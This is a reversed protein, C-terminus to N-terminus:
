TSHEVVTHRPGDSERTPPVARGRPRAADVLPVCQGPGPCRLVLEGLPEVGDGDLVGAPCRRRRAPPEAPAALLVRRGDLDQGPEAQQHPGGGGGAPPGAHRGLGREIVEEGGVGAPDGLEDLLGGAGALRHHAHEGVKMGDVGHAQGAGLGLQHLARGVDRGGQLVRCLLRLVLHDRQVRAARQRLVHHLLAQRAVPPRQPTPDRHTGDMEGRGGCQGMHARIQPLQPLGASLHTGRHRQRVPEDDDVLVQRDRRGGARVPLLCGDDDVVGGQDLHEAALELVRPRM